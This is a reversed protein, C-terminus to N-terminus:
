RSKLAKLNVPLLAAYIADATPTPIGAERGKRGIAGVMSELEFQHGAEVDVQMSAKIHPATADMFKLSQDVVEAGMRAGHANGVNRVENMLSIMMARTEPVSRWEAMPLRTLGGFSSASSIFVFKTWLLTAIDPSIEVDIGTSQFAEFIARTRPSQSGDAEGFVVRRFQSVHKIVGPSEIASSLWTAGGLVHEMGVISGIREVADIGNQLSLVTTQPGIAPKIVQASEDTSYTKVCFLILDVEGIAAADETANAPSISFDGFISKVQLGNQRIAQLHAGRALFTVEHGQRALLGGYYGGVGGSGAIAIKM